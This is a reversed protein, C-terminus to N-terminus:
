GPMVPCFQVSPSTCVASIVTVRQRQKFWWIDDSPKHVHILSSVPRMVTTQFDIICEQERSLWYHWSNIADLKTKISECADTVLRKRVIAQGYLLSHSHQHVNPTDMAVLLIPRLRVLKIRLPVNLEAGYTNLRFVIKSDVCVQRFSDLLLRHSMQRWEFVMVHSARMGGKLKKEVSPPKFIFM